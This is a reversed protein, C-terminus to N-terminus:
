DDVETVSVILGGMKLKDCYAEALEFVWVGVVAMGHQHAKQMVQYADAQSYDPIGGVLVRAVYERKNVNDNFLLLKFKKGKQNANDMSPKSPALVPAMDPIKVPAEVVMMSVAPRRSWPQVRVVDRASAVPAVVLGHTAAPLLLSLLSIRPM